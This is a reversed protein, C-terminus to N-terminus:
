ALSVWGDESTRSEYCPWDPESYLLAPVHARGALLAAVFRHRGDLLQWMGCQPAKTDDGDDVSPTFPALHVPSLDHEPADNLKGAYFRVREVDLPGRETVVIHSVSVRALKAKTGPAIM